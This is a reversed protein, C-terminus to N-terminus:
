DSDEYESEDGMKSSFLYPLHQHTRTRQADVSLDMFSMATQVPTAQHAWPAPDGYANISRLIAFAALMGLALLAWFRLMTRYFM